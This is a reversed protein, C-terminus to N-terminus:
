IKCSTTSPHFVVLITDKTLEQAEKIWYLSITRKYAIFELIM